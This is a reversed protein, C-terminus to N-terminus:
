QIGGFGANDIVRNKLKMEKWSESGSLSLLLEVAADIFLVLCKQLSALIRFRRWRASGLKATLGSELFFTHIENLRM